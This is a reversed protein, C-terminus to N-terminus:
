GERWVPAVYCSHEGISDEIAFVNGGCQGNGNELQHTCVFGDRVGGAGNELQAPEWKPKHFVLPM